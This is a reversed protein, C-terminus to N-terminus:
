EESPILFQCEQISALDYNIAYYDSCTPEVNVNGSIAYSCSKLKDFITDDDMLLSNGIHTCFDKFSDKKVYGPFDHCGSKYEVWFPKCFPVNNYDGTCTYAGENNEPDECSERFPKEGQYPDCQVGNVCNRPSNCFGIMFNECTTKWTPFGETNEYFLCDPILSLDYNVVAKSDCDLLTINNECSISKNLEELTAKEYGVYKPIIIDDTTIEKKCKDTVISYLYSQQAQFIEILSIDSEDIPETNEKKEECSILIFVLLFLLLYKM